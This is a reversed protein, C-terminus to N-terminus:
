FRIPPIRSSRHVAPILTPLDDRVTKWVVELDVNVYDHILKDRIGAMSRWPVAPHRERVNQSIRKAAEGLVELARVVAFVTKEDGAFAAYDMGSVFAIAKEAAQRIDCLHDRDDRPRKM